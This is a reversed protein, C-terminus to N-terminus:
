GGITFMQSGQGDQIIQEGRCAGHSPPKMRVGEEILDELAEETIGMRM